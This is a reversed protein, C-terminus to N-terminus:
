TGAVLYSALRARIQDAIVKAARDEADRQARWRAFRQQQGPIDSGVRAFATANVVPRGTALETLIYKVDIGTVEAETRGTQPDVILASRSTKMKINLRHTPAIGGEGGTLDFLLANRLEVAIRADESGRPADIHQVDVASLANQLTLGSSLPAQGYLPQFCGASLGASAMAIALRLM